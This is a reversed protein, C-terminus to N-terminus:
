LGQRVVGQGAPIGVVLASGHLSEQNGAARQLALIGARDHATLAAEAGDGVPHAGARRGALGCGAVGAAEELGPEPRPPRGCRALCLTEEGPVVFGQKGRRRCGVGQEAKREVPAGGVHQHDVEPLKGVLELAAADGAPQASAGQQGIVVAGRDVVAREGALAQLDGPGVIRHCQEEQVDLARSAKGHGVPALQTDAVVALVAVAVVGDAAFQDGHAFEGPLLDGQLRDAVPEFGM